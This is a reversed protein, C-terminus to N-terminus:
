GILYGSFHTTKNIGAVDVDVDAVAYYVSIVDNAALDLTCSFSVLAYDSDSTENSMHSHAEINFDSGNKYISARIYRSSQSNAIFTVCVNFQYLGAVPATFESNAFNGGKDYDEANFPVKEDTAAATTSHNANLHAFFAPRVPTLVRGSSDITLGATGAANQIQDVKIISTM